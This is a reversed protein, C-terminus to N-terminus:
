FDRLELLKTKASRYLDIDSKVDSLTAKWLRAPLNFRKHYDTSLWTDRIKRDNLNVGKLSGYQHWVEKRLTGLLSAIERLHDEKEQNLDEAYHVRTVIM